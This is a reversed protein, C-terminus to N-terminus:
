FTDTSLLWSFFFASELTLLLWWHSLQMLQGSSIPLARTPHPLHPQRGGSASLVKIKRYKVLTEHWGLAYHTCARVKDRERLFLLFLSHFFIYDHITFLFPVQAARAEQWQRWQSGHWLWWMLNGGCPAHLHSLPSAPLASCGGGACKLNNAPVNCHVLVSYNSSISNALTTYPLPMWNCVFIIPSSYFFDHPPLPSFEGDFVLCSAFELGGNPKRQLLFLQGIFDSALLNQVPQQLCSYLTFDPGQAPRGELALSVSPLTHYVCLAHAFAPYIM